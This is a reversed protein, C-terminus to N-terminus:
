QRALASRSKLVVDAAAGIDKAVYDATTGEQEGSGYGTTVLITTMGLKKGPVIDSNRDGIVYSRAPDISREEIAQEFMGTGPKRFPSHRAYEERKGEPHFPCFYYADIRAGILALSEAMFTHLRRVDREGYYGRAIGAQNTVVVTLLGAQNFSLIAERAGPIWRFDEERHLYNIEENLTGDRDLFVAAKGRSM